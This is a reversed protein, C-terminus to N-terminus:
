PDRLAPGLFGQGHGHSPMNVTIGDTFLALDTGHDADFGRLLYQNPKAAAQTSSPSSVPFRRWSMVPGFAPVCSWSAGGPTSVPRPIATRSTGQVTVELPAELPKATPPSEPPPETPDHAGALSSTGLGALLAAYAILKKNRRDSM